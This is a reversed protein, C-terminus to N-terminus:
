LYTLEFLNGQQFFTASDVYANMNFESALPRLLEHIRAMIDKAQQRNTKM